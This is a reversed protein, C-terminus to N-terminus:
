LLVFGTYEDFENKFKYYSIPNDMSENGPGHLVANSRWNGVTLVEDWYIHM